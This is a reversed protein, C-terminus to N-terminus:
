SRYRPFFPGEASPGGRGALGCLWDYAEPSVVRKGIYFHGRGGRSFTRKYRLLTDDQSGVGGGLLLTRCGRECGWLAAEHMILNNPALRNHEELSGSLHFSMRGNAYIMVSAAIPEGDREAWFVRSNQSLGSALAEYFPSGFYYHGDAGKRDMTANYIRRFLEYAEPSNGDHVRVGGKTAKRVRNRCESTLNRWIEEPSSLDMWVVEGLRVVEYFSRCAEHNGALPHFRVFECVIGSGELWGHYARFLRDAGDGEILWGGYGYPTTLDFWRGEELVGRLQPATTVDRRMAVNVGRTAGDDYSFLLPEGDGHLQLSRAYGSLWYADHNRFSRVVADWKDAEDLTYVRLM